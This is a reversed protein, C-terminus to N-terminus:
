ALWHTLARVWPRSAHPGWRPAFRAQFPPAARHDASPATSAASARPGRPGPTPLGPSPLCAAALEGNERVQLVKALATIGARSWSMGRRKFRQAYPKDINAEMAGLGVHQRYAPPVRQSWPPLGDANALLYGEFEALKARRQPTRARAWATALHEQLAAQDGQRAAQYAAPGAEGLRRRCARALHFPDLQFRGRGDPPLGGRIWAAGDGGLLV